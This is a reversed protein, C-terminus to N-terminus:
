TKFKLWGNPEAQGQVWSAVTMDEPYPPESVAHYLDYKLYDAVREINWALDTFTDTHNLCVRGAMPGFYRINPHWPHPIAKGKEDETLFRFVPAGDICPFLPPLDIRMRFCNSFVPRNAVIPNGIEDPHEVGCISCIAYEVEYAVPLDAVNREKVSVRIDDRRDFHAKIQQWEHLLRRNRGTQITTKDNYHRM